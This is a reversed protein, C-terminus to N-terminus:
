KEYLSNDQRSHDSEYHNEKPSMRWWNEMKNVYRTNWAKIAEIIKSQSKTIQQNMTVLISVMSWM